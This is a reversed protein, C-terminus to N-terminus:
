RSPRSPYVTAAAPALPIAALCLVLLRKFM